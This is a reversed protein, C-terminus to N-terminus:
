DSEVGGPPSNRLLDPLQQVFASRALVQDIGLEKARAITAIDIHSTFGVVVGKTRSKWEAAADLAGEQNLDVILREGAREVLKAPDRVVAFEVGLSKATATIKSAFLLDRVLVLIASNM